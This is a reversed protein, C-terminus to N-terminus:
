KVWGEPANEFIDCRSFFYSLVALASIQENANHSNGGSFAKLEDFIDNPELGDDNLVKYKERFSEALDEGYQPDPWGSLLEEVLNEKSRGARLLAEIDRSLQNYSLKDVSVPVIPVEPEVTRSKIANLLTKIPAHTLSHLDDMTPAPGFLDILKERPLSLAKDKIVEPGWVSISVAPYLTKYYELKDIAYPPLGEWSNHAFTWKQIKDNWKTVAGPLDSDIKNLLKPKEFGSSPAYSQFVHKDSSLYGDSKWDGESGAAKVPVFKEGHIAQMIQNFLDEYGQESNKRLSLEIKDGYWARTLDDMIM